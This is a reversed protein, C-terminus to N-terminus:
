RPQQRRVVIQRHGDVVQEPIPRSPTRIRADALGHDAALDDIVDRRPEPTPQIFHRHTEFPEDVPQEISREPEDALFARARRKQTLVAAYPRRVLVADRRRQQRRLHGRARPAIGALRIALERASEALRQELADIGGRCGRLLLEEAAELGLLHLRLLERAPLDLADERLRWAVARRDAPELHNRFASPEGRPRRAGFVNVLNIRLAIAAGVMQALHLGFRLRYDGGRKLPSM